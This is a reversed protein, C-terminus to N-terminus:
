LQEMYETPNVGTQKKFNVSFHSVCSYGMKDAVESVTFQRTALMLKSRLIREDQTFEYITKGEMEKFGRKLYSENLGILRSLEKISIHQEINEQIWKKAGRIKEKDAEKLSFIKSNGGSEEVTFHEFLQTLIELAKSELYMNYAIGSQKNHILRNVSYLIKSKSKAIDATYALLQGNLISIITAPLDESLNNSLDVIYDHHINFHVQFVSPRANLILDGNEAQAEEDGTVFLNVIISPFEGTLKHEFKASLLDPDVTLKSNLRYHSLVFHLGKKLELEMIRAHGFNHPLDFEHGWMPSYKVVSLHLEEVFRPNESIDIAAQM